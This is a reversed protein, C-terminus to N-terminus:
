NNLQKISQRTKNRGKKKQPPKRLSTNREFLFDGLAAVSEEKYKTEKQRNIQTRKTLMVSPYVM